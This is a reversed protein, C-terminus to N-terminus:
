AGALAINLANFLGHMVVPTVLRGTRRYAAGFALSLAFLTVLAQPAAVGVHAAAFILSTLAIPWWEWWGWWGGAGGAWARSEGAGAGQRRWASERRATSLRELASQLCGRYVFEEALPAGVVVAIVAFWWAADRGSATLTRLTEHAILDPPSGGTLWAILSAALTALHGVAVVVPFILLFLGLGAAVPRWRYPPAVGLARATGPLTALCLGAALAAALLAG